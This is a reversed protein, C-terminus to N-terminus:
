YDVAATSYVELNRNDLASILTLKPTFQTDDLRRSLQTEAADHLLIRFRADGEPDGRRDDEDVGSCV